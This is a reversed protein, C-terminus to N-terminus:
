SVRLNPTLYRIASPSALRVGERSRRHATRYYPLGEVIEVEYDGLINGWAPFDRFLGALGGKCFWFPQAVTGGPLSCGAWEAEEFGAAYPLVPTGRHVGAAPPAPLLM